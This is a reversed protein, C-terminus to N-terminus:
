RCQLLIAAPNIASEMREILRRWGLYSDLYRTAVGNFRTMWGKLRSDYANVNQIHFVGQRAYEGAARNIPEHHLGADRAIKAYASSADTCLLADPALLPLLHRGITEAKLDALVADSTTRNRDRVVLVPVLENLATGRRGTRVGRHRAQRSPPELDPSPRTWRRSGKYSRRFFTDDAKRVSSKNQLAAGFTLWREKHRLRALSTGTLANFTRRCARCRFRALGHASGWRGM